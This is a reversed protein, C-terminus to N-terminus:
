RPGPDEGVLRAVREELVDLHYPKPLWDTAGYRQAIRDLSPLGSAILVKTKPKRTSLYSLVDFGDVCAMKLDLVVADFDRGRLEVLAELGSRAVSIDFQQSLVEVLCDLMDPEDDVILVRSKSM